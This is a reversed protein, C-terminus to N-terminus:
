IRGSDSRAFRRHVNQIRSRPGRGWFGLRPGDHRQHGVQSRVRRPDRHTRAVLSLPTGYVPSAHTFPGKITGEITWGARASTGVDICAQSRPRRWLLRGLVLAALAVAAAAVVFPLWLQLM